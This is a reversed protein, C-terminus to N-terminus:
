GHRSRSPRTAMVAMQQLLATVLHRVVDQFLQRVARPTRDFQARSESDGARVEERDAVQRRKRLRAIDRNCSALLIAIQRALLVPNQALSLRHDTGLGVVKVGGNPESGRLGILAYAGVVLIDAAVAKRSNKSTIDWNSLVRGLM